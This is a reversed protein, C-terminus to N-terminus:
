AQQTARRSALEWMARAAAIATALIAEKSNGIPYQGSNMGSSCLHKGDFFIHEKSTPAKIVELM